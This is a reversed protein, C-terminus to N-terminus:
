VKKELKLTQIRFLIFIELTKIMEFIRVDFMRGRQIVDIMFAVASNKTSYM